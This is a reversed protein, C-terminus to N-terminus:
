NMQITFGNAPIKFIDGVDIDVSAQLAGYVLLNGGTAADYLGVHTVVGYAATADAWRFETDNAISGATGSFSGQGSSGVQVRAYATGSTSVETGGSSDSPAATLLGIYGGTGQTVTGDAFDVSGLSGLAELVKGELYDTAQSM